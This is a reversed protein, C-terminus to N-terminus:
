SRAEAVADMLQVREGTRDRWGPRDGAAQVTGASRARLGPVDLLRVDRRDRQILGAAHFRTFIRSVTELTLGLSEAIEKRGMALHFQAGSRGIGNMREAMSLLFAALRGEASKNGLTLLLNQKNALEQSMLRWVQVQLGPIQACLSLVRRFPLHCVSGTELVVATSRHRRTEAGDLGIIEGPLHFGTIRELNDDTGQLIKVTGSRLVYITEFADGARFLHQGRRVVRIAGRCREFNKLETNQLERCLCNAQVPCIQCSHDSAALATVNPQASM